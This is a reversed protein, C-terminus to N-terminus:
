SADSNAYRNVIAAIAVRAVDLGRGTDVVFDARARKEADPMQRALIARLKEDTMGPRALVRKRQVDAPATVVLVADCNAQGHTEFLLPVDLVVLPHGQLRARELFDTQRERVLPHILQELRMLEDLNGVVQKALRARDVVGNVIVDPYLKRIPEIAAGAYLAHVEADADYVPVGLDRFIQATTSKGMGISGTLGLVVTM